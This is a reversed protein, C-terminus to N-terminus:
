TDTRQEKTQVLMVEVGITHSTDTYDSNKTPDTSLSFFSTRSVCLFFLFM